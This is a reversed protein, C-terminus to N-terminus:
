TFIHRKTGGKVLRTESTSGWWGSISVFVDGDFDAGRLESTAVQVKYTSRAQLTDHM